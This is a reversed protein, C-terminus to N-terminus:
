TQGMTLMVLQMLMLQQKRRQKTALQMMFTVSCAPFGSVLQAKVAADISEAAPRSSEPGAAQQVQM